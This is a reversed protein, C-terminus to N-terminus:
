AVSRCAGEGSSGAMGIAEKQPNSSENTRYINWVDAIYREWEALQRTGVESNGHVFQIQDIVWRLSEERGIMCVDIQDVTPANLIPDLKMMLEDYEAYLQKM